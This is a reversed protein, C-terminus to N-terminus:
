KQMQIRIWEIDKQMATLTSQIEVMNVSSKFEELKNIRDNLTAYAWWLWFVFMWLAIRTAPNTLYEKIKNMKKKKM